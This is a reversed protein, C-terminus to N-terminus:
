LENEANRMMEMDQEYAAYDHTGVAYGDAYGRNYADILLKALNIM